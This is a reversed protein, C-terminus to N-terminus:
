FSLEHACCPAELTGELADKQNTHTVELSHNKGTQVASRMQTFPAVVSVSQLLTFSRPSRFSFLPFFVVVVFGVLHPFQVVSRYRTLSSAPLGKPPQLLLGPFVGNRSGAQEETERSSPVCGQEGWEWPHSRSSVSGWTKVSPSVSAPSVPAQGRFLQPEQLGASARWAM